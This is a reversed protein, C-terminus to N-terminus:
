PVATSCPVQSIPAISETEAKGSDPCGKERSDVGKGGCVTVWSGTFPYRQDQLCTWLYRYADSFLRM